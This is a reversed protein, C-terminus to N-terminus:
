VLIAGAPECDYIYSYDFQFFNVTRIISFGLQIVKENTFTAMVLEALRKGSIKPQEVFYNRRAFFQSEGDPVIIGNLRHTHQIPRIYERIFTEQNVQLRYLREHQSWSMQFMMQLIEFGLVYNFVSSKEQSSMILKLASQLYLDTQQQTDQASHIYFQRIYRRLVTKSLTTKIHFQQLYGRVKDQTDQDQIVRYVLGDATYDDLFEAQTEPTAASLLHCLSLVYRRQVWPLGELWEQAEEPLAGFVIETDSQLFNM